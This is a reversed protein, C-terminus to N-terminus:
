DADGNQVSHEGASARFGNAALRWRRCRFLCADFVSNRVIAAGRVLATLKGDNVRGNEPRDAAYYQKENNYWGSKNAATDYVWKGPDPLGARDFEESWVLKYGAPVKAEQASATPAAVVLSAFCLLNHLKYIVM